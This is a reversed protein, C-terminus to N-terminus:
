MTFLQLRQDFGHHWTDASHWNLGSCQCVTAMLMSIPQSLCSGAAVLSKYIHMCAHGVSCRGLQQQVMDAPSWRLLYLTENQAFLFRFTSTGDDYSPPTLGSKLAM